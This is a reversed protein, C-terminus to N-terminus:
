DMGQSIDALQAKANAIQETIQVKESRLDAIDTLLQRRISLSEGYFRMLEAENQFRIRRKVLAMRLDELTMWVPIRVGGCEIYDRPEVDRGKGVVIEAVQM